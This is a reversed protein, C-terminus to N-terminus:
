LMKELLMTFLIIATLNKILNNQKLFIQNQMM